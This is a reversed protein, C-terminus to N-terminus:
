GRLSKLKKEIYKLDYSEFDKKGNIIRAKDDVNHKLLIFKLKEEETVEYKEYKWQRGQQYVIFNQKGEELDKQLIEALEHIRM